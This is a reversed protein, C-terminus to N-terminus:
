EFKRKSMSESRRNCHGSIDRFKQKVNKMLLGNENFSVGIWFSLITYLAMRIFAKVSM